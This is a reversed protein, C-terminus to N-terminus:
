KGPKKTLSYVILKTEVKGLWEFAKELKSLPDKDHAADNINEIVVNFEPEGYFKRDFLEKAKANAIDVKQKIANETETIQESGVSDPDDEGRLMAAKLLGYKTTYTLAKGPGKDQSDKGAGVSWVDFFDGSEVHVIRLTASVYCISSIVQLQGSLPYYILGHKVFLPRLLALVAKESVTNYSINSGEIQIDNGVATVKQMIEHIAVQALNRM